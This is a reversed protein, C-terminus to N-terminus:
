AAHWCRYWRRLRQHAPGQQRWSPGFHVGPKESNRFSSHPKKDPSEKMQINMKPLIEQRQAHYVLAFEEDLRILFRTQGDVLVRERPFQAFFYKWVWCPLLWAWDKMGGGCPQRQNEFYVMQGNRGYHAPVAGPNALTATLVRPAMALTGCRWGFCRM